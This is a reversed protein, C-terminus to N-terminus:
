HTAFNEAFTGDIQNGALTNDGHTYLHPNGGPVVNVGVYNYTIVSKTVRVDETGTSGDSSVEIGYGGGPYGNASIICSDIDLHTEQGSAQSQVLVGAYSNNVLMSNRVVGASGEFLNLGAGSAEMRSNEIVFKAFFPSAGYTVIGNGTCQFFGSNKVTMVGAAVLSFEIGSFAFGTVNCSDIILSAVASALIGDNAVGLGFISLGRLIVTSGAAPANIAVANQAANPQTISAEIGPPSVLSVSQTITVAGYGGSDLALVEGGNAVVTLAKAFSRCPATVSCAFSDDGHQASVFVRNQAFASAALVTMAFAWLLPKM